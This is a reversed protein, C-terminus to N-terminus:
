HRFQASLLLPATRPEWCPPRVEPEILLPTTALDVTFTLLATGGSTSYSSSSLSATAAPDPVVGSRARSSM